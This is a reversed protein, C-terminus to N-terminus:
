SRPAEEFLKTLAGLSEPSMGMRASARRLHGKLRRLPLVPASASTVELRAQPNTFVVLPQVDTDVGPAHEEIYKQIRETDQLAEKTPNGLPEETFFRLIRGLGLDRLWKDKFCRIRGGVGRM